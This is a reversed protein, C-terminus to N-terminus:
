LRYTLDVLCFKIHSQVSVIPYGKILETANSHDGSLGETSGLSMLDLERGLLTM